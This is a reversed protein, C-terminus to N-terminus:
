SRRRGDRAAMLGDFAQRYWGLPACPYMPLHFSSPNLLLAVAQTGELAPGPCAQPEGLYTFLIQMTLWVTNVSHKIEQRKIKFISVSSLSFINLFFIGANEGGMLQLRTM